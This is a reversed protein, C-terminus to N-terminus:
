GAIDNDAIYERVDQNPGRRWRPNVKVLKFTRMQLQGAPCQGLDTCRGATARDGVHTAVCRRRGPFQDACGAANMPNHRVVAWCLEDQEAVTHGSHYQPGSTM